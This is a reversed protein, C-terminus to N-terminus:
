TLVSDLGEAGLFDVVFPAFGGDGGADGGIKAFLGYTGSGVSEEVSLGADTPIGEPISGDKNWGIVVVSDTGIQIVRRSLVVLLLM